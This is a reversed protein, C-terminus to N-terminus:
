SRVGTVAFLSVMEAVADPLTRMGLAGKYPIPDRLPRPDAFELHWVGAEAWASCIRAHCSHTPDSAHHVGVLEATGIITGYTPAITEISPHGSGPMWLTAHHDYTLGAHIAVPGRYDGAINRNRNEVDKGGHILAWTWPQRVTLIRM